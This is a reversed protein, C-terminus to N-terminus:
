AAFRTGATSGPGFLLGAATTAQIQDSIKILISCLNM